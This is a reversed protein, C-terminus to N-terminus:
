VLDLQLVVRRRDARPLRPELVIRAIGFRERREIAEILTGAIVTREDLNEARALLVRLAGLRAFRHHDTRGLREFLEAVHLLRDERIARDEVVEARVPGDELLEGDEELLRL